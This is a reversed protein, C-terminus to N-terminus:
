EGLVKKVTIDYGANEIADKAAQSDSVGQVLL